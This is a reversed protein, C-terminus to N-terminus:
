RSIARPRWSHWTPASAAPTSRPMSCFCCGSRRCCGTCARATTPPARPRSTARAAISCSRSTANARPPISRSRANRRQRRGRYGCCRKARKRTRAILCVSRRVACALSRRSHTRWRWASPATRTRSRSRHSSTANSWSTRIFLGNLNGTTASSHTNPPIQSRSRCHIARDGSRCRATTSPTASSSCVPPRIVPTSSPV